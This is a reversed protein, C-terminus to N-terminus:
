HQTSIHAATATSRRTTQRATTGAQWARSSRAAASRLAAQKPPLHLRTPSTLHPLKYSQTVHRLTTTSSRQTFHTSQTTPRTPHAHQHYSQSSHAADCHDAATNSVRGDHNCLCPSAACRKLLSFSNPSRPLLKIPLLFSPVVCSLLAVTLLQHCAPPQVLRKISFKFQRAAEVDVRQESLESSTIEANTSRM